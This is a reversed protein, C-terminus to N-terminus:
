LRLSELFIKGTPLGRISPHSRALWRTRDKHTTRSGWTRNRYRRTLGSGVSGRLDLVLWRVYVVRNWDYIAPAAM